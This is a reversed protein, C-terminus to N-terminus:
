LVTGCGSCSISTAESPLGDCDVDDNQLMAYNALDYQLACSNCFWTLLCFMGTYCDVM